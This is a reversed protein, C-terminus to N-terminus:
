SVALRAGRGGPARRGSGLGAAVDMPVSVAGHLLCGLFAAIWEGSNEAWLLVRDGKLIGRATLEFAFQTARAFLEAYSWRITRYGRHWVVAAESSPRSGQQFYELLSERPM